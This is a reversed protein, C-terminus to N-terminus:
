QQETQSADRGDDRVISQSTRDWRGLRGAVEPDADSLVQRFWFGFLDGGRGQELEQRIQELAEDEPTIQYEDVRLVHFGFQTEVPGLVEGVEAPGSWIAEEFPPVFSGRPALGLSGGAEASGPDQSLERALAAFDEGAELRDLVEQAQARTEVLIHSVSAQQFEDERQEYQARVDEDTLPEEALLEASVEDLLATVFQSQRFLELTQGQATLQEELAEQGGAQEAAQAVLQDIEADTVEIGFDEAAAAAALEIQFLNNLVATQLQVRRELDSGTFQDAQLAGSAVADDVADQLEDLTVVAGGGRAAVDGNALGSLGASADGTLAACGQLVLGALPVAVLAAVRSARLRAVQRRAPLPAPAAASHVALRGMSWDAAM